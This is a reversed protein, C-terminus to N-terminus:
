VKAAATCDSCQCAKLELGKHKTYEYPQSGWNLRSKLWDPILNRYWAFPKDAVIWEAEEGTYWWDIFVGETADSDELYIVRNNIEIYLSEKNRIDIKM